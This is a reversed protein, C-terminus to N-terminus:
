TKGDGFVDKVFGRLARKPGVEVFARAGANYMTQLGKVWQVPSAIQKELLDKIESENAPYFEGTVNAVLPLRPPAIHMRDLMKRLPASAPAVIRTHFAHSVPLQM